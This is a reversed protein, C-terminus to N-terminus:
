SRTWRRSAGQASATPCRCRWCAALPWCRRGPLWSAFTIERAWRLAANSFLLDLPEEARWSELHGLEFRLRGPISHGEAKALMESSSDVGVIRASPWREALLQTLDGPGCGLDAATHVNDLGVQGFLDHFPRARESSFKAYQDPNWM